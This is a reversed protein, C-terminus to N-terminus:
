KALHQTLDQDGMNRKLLSSYGCQPGGLDVESLPEEKLHELRSLQRDAPGRVLSELVAARGKIVDHKTPASFSTERNRVLTDGAQGAWTRSIAEDSEREGPEECHRNTTEGMTAPLSTTASRGPGSRPLSRPFRARPPWLVTGSRLPGCPEESDLRLPLEAGNM